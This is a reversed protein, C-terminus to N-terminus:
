NGAVVGRLAADDATFDESGEPPHALHWDVSRQLATAPDTEQWGLESRAKSADFLLHQEFAATLRLDDPLITDPVRVFEGAWGAARAIQKAWQGITWSRAECINFIEAQTNAEIALRVARAIDRM